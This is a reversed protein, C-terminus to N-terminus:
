KTDEIDAIPVIGIPPTVPGFDVWQQPSIM